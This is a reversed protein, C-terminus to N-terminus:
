AEETAPPRAGGGISFWLYVLGGALSWFFIVGYMLLSLPVARTAPVALAPVALLFKAATDRAGLGGPTVPIAAITNIAPFITIYDLLTMRIELGLGLCWVSVLYLLHNALSLAMTKFLLARENLCAHFTGYARGIVRGLATREELRRFFAWQEFLHRRFFVLMLVIGGILVALNFAMALRTEPYALFFPLRALTITGTLFVLAFLGVLRDVFVTAAAEAKQHHTERTVYWAKVVDGGTAGFLFSNFFHGIFYLAAVRPLPLVLARADLLLKWRAVCLLICMLFLGLSAALLPWHTASARLADLLDGRNQMRHFLFALLGLGIALQVLGVLKKRM